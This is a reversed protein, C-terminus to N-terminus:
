RPPSWTSAAALETADPAPPVEGPDVCRGGRLLSALGALVSLGASVSVRDGSRPSVARLHPMWKDRDDRGARVEEAAM